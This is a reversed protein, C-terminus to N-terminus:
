FDGWIKHSGKLNHFDEGIQLVSLFGGGGGSSIPRLVHPLLRM